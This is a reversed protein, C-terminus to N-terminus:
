FLPKNLVLQLSLTNKLTKKENSTKNIIIKKIKIKM